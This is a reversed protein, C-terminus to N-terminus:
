FRNGCQPCFKASRSTKAGCETCFKVGSEAKPPAANATASEAQTLLDQLQVRQRELARLQRQYMDIMMTSAASQRIRYTPMGDSRGTVESCLDRLKEREVENQQQRLKYEVERISAEVKVLEQRIATAKSPAQAGAVLPLLMAAMIIARM